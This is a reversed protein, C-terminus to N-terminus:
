NFQLFGMFHGRTEFGARMERQRDKNTTQRVGTDRNACFRDAM